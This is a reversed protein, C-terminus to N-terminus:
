IAKNKAKESKQLYLNILLNILLTIKLPADLCRLLGTKTEKREM